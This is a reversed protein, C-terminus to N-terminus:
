INSSKILLDEVVTQTLGENAVFLRSDQDTVDSYEAFSYFTTSTQIFAM